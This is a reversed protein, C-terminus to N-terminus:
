TKGKLSAAFRLNYRLLEYTSQLSKWIGADVDSVAQLAEQSASAAMLDKHTSYNSPTYYLATCVEYKHPEFTKM